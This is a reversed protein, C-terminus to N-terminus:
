VDPYGIIINKINFKGIYLLRRLVVLKYPKIPTLIHLVDDELVYDPKQTYVRNTYKDRYQYTLTDEIIDELKM